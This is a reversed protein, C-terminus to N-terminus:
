AQESAPLLVRFITGGEPRGDAEIHGGHLRVISYCTSLGLGTGNPKTTFYPDFIKALHEPAIGVGEDEVTIRVYRGRPLPLAGPAGVHVNDARLRVLGGAPMAQVANILLNNLVQSIQGEDMDVRWLDPAAEIECRSLSGRMVLRSSEYLLALVSGSRKIPAGGRSFMLLQKTLGRARACAQEAISLTEALTDPQDRFQRALAVSGSVCTLINNFDHAIGGALLGLSELKQARHLETELRSQVTVDRLVLVVGITAGTTGYIPAGTYQVLRETGQASVALMVEGPELARMQSLVRQVLDPGPKGTAADRVQLMEHLVRGAAQEQDLGTLTQAVRNMMVVRGMVDTTIVGDAISQLTVALREKEDRLAKEAAILDTTDTAVVAMGVIEDGQCLAATNVLLERLRWGTDLVRVRCRCWEGEMTRQMVRETVGRDPPHVMEQWPRGVCDRAALGTVEQARQNAFTVNRQCDLTWVVDNAVNLITQYRQASQQLVHRRRKRATINRMVALLRNVGAVSAKQLSVEFWIPAGKRVCAKWEFLQASGDLAKRVHQLVSVVASSPDALQGLLDMARRNGWVIAASEFDHVVICDDLQDFMARYLDCNPHPESCERVLFSVREPGDPLGDFLLRRPSGGPPTVVCEIGRTPGLVRVQEWPGAGPMEFAVLEDLCRGVVARPHLSLGLLEIAQADATDIRGRPGCRM